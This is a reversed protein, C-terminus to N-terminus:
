EEPRGAVRATIYATALGVLAVPLSVQLMLTGIASPAIPGGGGGGGGGGSGAAYETLVSFTLFLALGAYLFFGVFSGAGGVVAATAERDPLLHGVGGGALGAVVSGVGFVFFIAVLLMLGVQTSDLPNTGPDVFQEIFFGLTFNAALGLGAGLAAFVGVVALGYVYAPRRM